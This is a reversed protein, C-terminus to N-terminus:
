LWDFRRVVIGTGTHPDGREFTMQRLVGEIGIRKGKALSQVALRALWNNAKVRFFDAEEANRDVAIVFSATATGDRFEELDVDTAVRGILNVTNM